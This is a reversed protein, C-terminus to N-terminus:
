RGAEAATAGTLEVAVVIECTNARWSAALRRRVTSLALPKRSAYGGTIWRDQRAPTPTWGSALKYRFTTIM